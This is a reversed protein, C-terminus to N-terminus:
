EQLDISDISILKKFEGEEFKLEFIPYPNGQDDFIDGFYTLQKTKTTRLSMKSNEFKVNEPDYEYEEDL